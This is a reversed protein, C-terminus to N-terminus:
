GLRVMSRLLAHRLAEPAPLGGHGAKQEQDHREEQRRQGGPQPQM